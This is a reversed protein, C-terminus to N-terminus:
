YDAYVVSSGLDVNESLRYSAGTQIDYTWVAHNDYESMLGRWTERLVLVHQSDIFTLAEFQRDEPLNLYGDVSGDLDALLYEAEAGAATRPKCALRQLPEIWVAGELRCTATLLDLQAQQDTEPNWSHIMTDAGQATEFLLLGPTAELLRTVSARPHAYLIRNETGDVAPVAYLTGGDDYVVIGPKALFLALVGQYLSASEGTKLNFWAIRSVRMRNVSATEAILLYEPGMATISRIRADGLRGAVSLSADRMSFRMLYAGQGFYLAGKYAPPQQSDCAVLAIALLVPILLTKM